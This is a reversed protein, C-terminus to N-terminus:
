AYLPSPIHPHSVSVTYVAANSLDHRQQSCHINRPYTAITPCKAAPRGCPDCHIVPRGQSPYVGKTSKVCSQCVNSMLSRRDSFDLHENTQM